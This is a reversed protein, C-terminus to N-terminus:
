EGDNLDEINVIGTDEEESEELRLGSRVQMRGRSEIRNNVSSSKSRSSSGDPPMELQDTANAVLDSDKVILVANEPSVASVGTL